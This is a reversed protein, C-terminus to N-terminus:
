NTIEKKKERKRKIGREISKFNSSLLFFKRLINSLEDIDKQAMQMHREQCALNNETAM